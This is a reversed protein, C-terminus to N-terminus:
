VFGATEIGYPMGVQSTLSSTHSSVGNTVSSKLLDIESPYKGFLKRIPSIVGIKFFADRSGEIIM